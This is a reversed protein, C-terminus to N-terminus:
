AAHNAHYAVLAALDGPPTHEPLCACANGALEFISGDTFFTSGTVFIVKVGPHRYAAYDAVSLAEAEGLSLALVILDPASRDALSLIATDRDRAITVQAGQRELHRAWLQGQDPNREAILINM